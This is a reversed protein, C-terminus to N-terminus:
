LNPITVLGGGIIWAAFASVFALVFAWIIKNIGSLLKDQGARIYSVDTRLTHMEMDRRIERERAAAQGDELRGVRQHLDHVM